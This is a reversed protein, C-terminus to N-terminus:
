PQHAVLPNPTALGEDTRGGRTLEGPAPLPMPMAESLGRGVPASRLPRRDRQRATPSGTTAGRPLTQGLADYGHHRAVEEIVDIETASDYRWSPIQVELEDGAPTTTFGIPDLLEAM